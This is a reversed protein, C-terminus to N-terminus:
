AAPPRLKEDETLNSAPLWTHETVQAQVAENTNFEPKYHMVGQHYPITPQSITQVGQGAYTAQMSPQHGGHGMSASANSPAYRFMFQARERELSGTREELFKNLQRLQNVEVRLQKIVRIADVVISLRDQRGEGGGSCVNSLEDFYQNLRERRAKERNAKAVAADSMPRGRKGVKEQGQNGSCNKGDEERASDVERIEQRTQHVKVNGGNRVDEHHLDQPIWADMYAGKGTSTSPGAGSADELTDLSPPLPLGGVLCQLTKDDLDIFLNDGDLINLMSNGEHMMPHGIKAGKGNERRSANESM